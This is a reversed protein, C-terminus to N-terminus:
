DDGNPHCELCSNSNYVYDNVESHDDDTDTRNHEHCDICSFVAYNTANTHCDTCSNWEERHKGSYIPFYQGDHDFTAPEWANETHCAMCDTPFNAAAHGPDSTQNYDDAHCAFCTNPTNQYSGEHCAFCDTAIRNHAGQIVYYDNHQDFSAPTWGPETTHCLACDNQISAAAHNPNTTANYDAQHCAFCESSLNSFNNDTHCKFCDNIAHGRTLAFFEHNFGSSSWEFASVEHCDECHVSYGSAVHNPQTTSNYDTRHCDICETKLPEFRTFNNSTHCDFCDATAHAGLLPFSTQQHIETINTVLWSQSTHCQACDSGLTNEHVDTHCQMCQNPAENFVLSSHCSRCDTIQHQGELLFNTKRHDFAFTKPNVEWGEQTHCTECDIKLDKEHPSKQAFVSISFSLILIISSLYRM